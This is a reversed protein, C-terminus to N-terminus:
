AIEKPKPKGAEVLAKNSVLFFAQVFVLLGTGVLLWEIKVVDAVPGFM